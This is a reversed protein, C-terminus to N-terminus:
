LDERIRNERQAAIMEDLMADYKAPNKVIMEEITSRKWIKKGGGKSGEPLVASSKMSNTEIKAKTTGIFQKYDRIAQKAREVHTAGDSSLVFGDFVKAHQPNEKFDEGLEAAILNGAEQLDLQEAKQSEEQSKRLQEASMAKTVHSVIAGTLEAVAQEPETLFKEALAKNDIKMEIAQPPQQSAGKRAENLEKLLDSNKSALRGTLSELNVYSNIVEELSKGKLKEPVKVAPVTNDANESVTTVPASPELATKDTTEPVAVPYQHDSRANAPPEGKLVGPIYDGEKPAEIEDDNKSSSKIVNNANSAAVFSEPLQTMVGAKREPIERMKKEKIQGSIPQAAISNGNKAFSGVAMKAGDAMEAFIEKISKEKM